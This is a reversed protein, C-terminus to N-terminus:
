SQLKHELQQYVDRGMEDRNVAWLFLGRGHSKVEWLEGINKKQQEEPNHELHAGKYEVVLIRGDRLEAVFDPYFYGNALPLRLSFSPQSELNRVWHKVLYQRDLAQACEFQEGKSELEGVNRYYHKSFQYSGSYWWHAPYNDPDFSFSYDYSTEVAAEADFLACQYGSSFAQERYSKIKERLAKELPYRALILHSLPIDRQNTLNGITRRIFELLVEQRIDPQQLRRDLWRSLQLDTMLAVDSLDLAAQAGVYREVVRKGQVDIEYQNAAERIAFEGETLQPPYDLPSWGREDLFWEEDALELEGDIWLCLQPVVFPTRQEAPSPPRQRSRHHAITARVSARESNPVARVLKDELEDSIVGTVIIKTGEGEIVEVEIQSRDLLDLATLDPEASLHLTLPRSETEWAPGPEHVPFLPPQPDIFQQAEQQEFGMSVLRDHLEGVAQPWSISAVHAYAKNLEPQSRGKAYPMRLVRGLLQEVAQKSRVTAVSCFVYAFPCDWGEKLAQVTIVFEVKNQPDLLDVGDLERQDGTAIAIRERAIQCDNVLFSELVQVTVDQDRNEAQFLVIPRLFDVETQALQHLKERTHIADTVAQQWTQHETLVIPLKIMEEYKLEAASVYALINSNSAPTATFELICAPNVRRLVDFSLPTSANHAEDVLVLPRHLALLNAFSYRIKGADAGDEIADLGAVTDPVRAFHPELYENHAYVKRGERNTVRLTQMTGIVICVKDRLDQPRIQTFDAIDFVRVQGGFVDLLAERNPHGPKTFTEYTQQRITNTPVLLLVLPYERELYANAAIGIAHASLLTKGGGTPVRLCGYPRDELGDITTYAASPRDQAALAAAFASAPGDFRASELFTQLIDLTSKQYNKLQFM